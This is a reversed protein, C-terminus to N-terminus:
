QTVCPMAEPCTAVGDGEGAALSDEAPLYGSLWLLFIQFSCELDKHTTYSCSTSPWGPVSAVSNLGVGAERM